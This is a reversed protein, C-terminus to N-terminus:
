KKKKGENQGELPTDENVQQEQNQENNQDNNGHNMQADNIEKARALEQAARLDEPPPGTKPSNPPPATLPPANEKKASPSMGMEKLQQQEKKKQQYQQNAKLRVSMAAFDPRDLKLIYVCKAKSIESIRSKDNIM